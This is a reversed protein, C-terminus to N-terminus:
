YKDELALNSLEKIEKNNLTYEIDKTLAGDKTLLPIDIMEKIIQAYKVSM